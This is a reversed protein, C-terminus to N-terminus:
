ALRLYVSKILAAAHGQHECSKSDLRDLLYVPCIAIPTSNITSHEQGFTCM